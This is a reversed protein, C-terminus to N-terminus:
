TFTYLHKFIFNHLVFVSLLIRSSSFSIGIIDIKLCFQIVTFLRRFYCLFLSKLNNFRYKIRVLFLIINSKTKKKKKMESSPLNIPIKRAPSESRRFTYKRKRKSQPLANGHNLGLSLSLKKLSAFFETNKALPLVGQMSVFIIM